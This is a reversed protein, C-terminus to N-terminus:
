KNKIRRIIKNLIDLRLSIQAIQYNNKLLGIVYLKKSFDLKLDMIPSIQVYKSQWMFITRKIESNLKIVRKENLYFQEILLNIFEYTNTVDEPYFHVYSRLMLDTIYFSEIARLSNVSTKTIGTPNSRYAYQCKSVMYISNARPVVLHAIISDEYWYNEPFVLHEFFKRKIAKGWACGNLLSTDNEDKIMINKIIKHDNNFTYYGTAVIDADKSFAKKLLCDIYDSTVYDDSDIFILYKGRAERIGTNRAGSFGKNCQSIIRFNTMRTSYQRLIEATSDTSGDDITIIEVNYSTNQNLMSDLCEAVYHEVNYCPIIVTADYIEEQYKFVCDPSYCETMPDKAYKTLVKDHLRDYLNM